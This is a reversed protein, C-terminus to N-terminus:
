ILQNQGDLYDQENNVRDNFQDEEMEQQYQINIDEQQHLTLSNMQSYHYTGTDVFDGTEKSGPQVIEAFNEISAMMQPQDVTEQKQKESEELIERVRMLLDKNTLIEM